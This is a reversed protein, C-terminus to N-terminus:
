LILKIEPLSLSKERRWLMWVYELGLRAGYRVPLHPCNEPLLKKPPTTVCM